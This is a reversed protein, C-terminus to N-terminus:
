EDKLGYKELLATYDRIEKKFRFIYNYGFWEEEYVGDYKPFIVTENYSNVIGWRGDHDSSVVWVPEGNMNKLQTNKLPPNMEKAQMATLAKAALELADKLKDEKPSLTKSVEELYERAKRWKSLRAKNNERMVHEQHHMLQIKDYENM